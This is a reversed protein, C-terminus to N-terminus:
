KEIIKIIDVISIPEYGVNDVGIDLTRPHKVYGEHHEYRGHIHGFLCIIDSGEKPCHPYHSMSFNYIKGDHEYSMEHTYKWWEILKANFLKDLEITRDHNGKIFYKKGNLKSVINKLNTKHKYSFDGLVYIEDEPGVVKNWSETIHQNM